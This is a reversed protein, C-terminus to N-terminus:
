HDVPLPPAELGAEGASEYYCTTDLRANGLLDALVALDTGGVPRSHRRLYTASCRRHHRQTRRGARYSRHRRPERLLQRTAVVSRLAPGLVAGQRSPLTASLRWLTEDLGGTPPTHYAAEPVAAVLRPRRLGGAVLPCTVIVGLLNDEPGSRRAPTRGPALTNPM